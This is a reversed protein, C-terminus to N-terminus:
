PMSISSALTSAQTRRPHVHDLEVQVFAQRHEAVVAEVHHQLDVRQLV